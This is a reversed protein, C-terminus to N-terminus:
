SCQTWLNIVIAFWHSISFHSLLWKQYSENGVPLFSLTSDEARLYHGHLYFILPSFHPAPTVSWHTFPRSHSHSVRREIRLVQAIAPFQPTCRFEQGASASVLASPSVERGAWGFCFVKTGHSIRNGFYSSSCSPAVGLTLSHCRWLHKGICVCALM